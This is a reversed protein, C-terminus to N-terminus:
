HYVPDQSLLRVWEAAVEGLYIMVWTTSSIGSRTIVVAGTQCNVEDLYIMTLVNNYVLVLNPSILHKDSCVAVLERYM